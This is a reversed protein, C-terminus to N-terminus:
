CSMRTDLADDDATSGPMRDHTDVLQRLMELHRRRGHVRERTARHLEDLREAGTAAGVEDPAGEGAGKGM